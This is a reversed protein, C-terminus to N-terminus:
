KVDLHDAVRPDIQLHSICFNCHSLSIPQKLIEIVTFFADVMITIAELQYKGM